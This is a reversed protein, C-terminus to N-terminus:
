GGELPTDEIWELIRPGFGIMGFVLVACLAAYIGVVFDLM